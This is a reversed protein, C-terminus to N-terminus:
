PNVPLDPGGPDDVPMTIGCEPATCPHPMECCVYVGGGKICCNCSTAGCARMGCYSDSRCFSAQGIRVGAGLMATVGLLVIAWQKM